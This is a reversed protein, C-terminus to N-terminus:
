TKVIVMKKKGNDCVIPVSIVNTINTVCSKSYVDFEFDNPCLITSSENSSGAMNWELRCNNNLNDFM